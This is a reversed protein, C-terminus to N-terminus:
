PHLYEDENRESFYNMIDELLEKPCEKKPVILGDDNYEIHKLPSYNWKVLIAWRENYKRNKKSGHFYHRITGPTYGFRLHKAHIEYDRVARIYDPNKVGPISRMCDHMLCCFIVNDGSGLIAKEFLGGMKEYAFRNCAWAFGPHWYDIGGKHKVNEKEHNYGASTFINIKTKDYNMDDCHSFLQVIDKYGNLLKLTDSAWTCSEFEIDADIWAVAKWHPPLLRRIGLNILNEKHWLPATKTSLQLHRPNDADTIMFSQGEYVLEVVYLIINEEKEMRKMFDQALITRKKYNWPNSLVAVVHLYEDILENNKLTQKIDTKQHYSLHRLNKPPTSVHTMTM